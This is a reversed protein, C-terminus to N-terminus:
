AFFNEDIQFQVVDAVRNRATDFANGPQARGKEGNVGVRLGHLRGDLRQLNQLSVQVVRELEAIRLEYARELGTMLAANHGANFM